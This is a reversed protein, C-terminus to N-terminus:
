RAGLPGRAAPAQRQAARLVASEVERHPLGTEDAYAAIGRALAATADSWVALAVTANEGRNNRYRDDATEVARRLEILRRPIEM